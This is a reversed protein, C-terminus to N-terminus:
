GLWRRVLWLVVAAYLGALVDDAMIGWGGPLRELRRIPFPKAIDFGRFLVFGAAALGLTAPAVLAFTALQGAVEDIVVNRPDEEGQLRAATTAAPAGLLLLGAAGLVATAHAPPWAWCLGAVVLSAFTAPVWPILGVPGFIAFWHQAREWATGRSPRVTAVALSYSKAM